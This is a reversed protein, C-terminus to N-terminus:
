ALMLIIKNDTADSVRAKRGRIPIYPCRGDNVKDWFDEGEPTDAWDFDNVVINEVYTPRGNQEYYRKYALEYYEKALDKIYM